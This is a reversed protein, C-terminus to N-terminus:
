PVPFNTLQTSFGLVFQCGPVGFAILNNIKNQCIVYIYHLGETLNTSWINKEIITKMIIVSLQCKIIKRDIRYAKISNTM